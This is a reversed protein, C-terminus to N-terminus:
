AILRKLCDDFDAAEYVDDLNEWRFGMGELLDIEENTLKKEKKLQRIKKCNKGGINNGLPINPNGYFSKHAIMLSYTHRLTPSQVCEPVSASIHETENSQLFLSVRDRIKVKNTMPLADVYHLGKRLTAVVPRLRTTVHFSFATVIAGSEIFLIILSFIFNYRVSQLRHVYQPKPQNTAIRQM